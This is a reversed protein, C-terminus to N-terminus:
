ISFFDLLLFLLYNKFLTFKLIKLFKLVNWLMRYKKDCKYNFLQYSLYKNLTHKGEQNTLKMSMPIAANESDLLALLVCHICCIRKSNFLFLM